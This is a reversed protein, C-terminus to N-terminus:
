RENCTGKMVEIKKRKKKKTEFFPAIFGYSVEDSPIVNECVGFQGQLLDM